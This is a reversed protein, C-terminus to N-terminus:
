LRSSLPVNRRGSISPSAVLMTIASLASSSRSSPISTSVFAGSGRRPARTCQDTRNRRRPPDVVRDRMSICANAMLSRAVVAVIASACNASSRAASRAAFSCIAVSVVSRSASVFSRSASRAECARRRSSSSSRFRRMKMAFASRTSVRLELHLERLLEALEVLEGAREVLVVFVAGLGVVAVIRLLLLARRGASAIELIQRELFLADLDGIREVFLEDGGAFGLAGSNTCSMECMKPNFASRGSRPTARCRSNRPM